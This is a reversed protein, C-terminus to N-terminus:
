ENWWTHLLCMSIPISLNVSVAGHESATTRCASSVLCCGELVRLALAVEVTRSSEMFSGAEGGALTDLNKALRKRPALTYDFLVPVVPLGVLCQYDTLAYDGRFRWLACCCYVQDVKVLIAWSDLGIARVLFGLRLVVASLKIRWM